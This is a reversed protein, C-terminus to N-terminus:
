GRTKRPVFGALWRGWYWGERRLQAVAGQFLAQTAWGRRYSVTAMLPHEPGHSGGNVHSHWACRTNPPPTPRQMGEEKEQAVASVLHSFSFLWIMMSPQSGLIATIPCFPGPDAEWLWVLLGSAGAGSKNVPSFSLSWHHKLWWQKLNESM